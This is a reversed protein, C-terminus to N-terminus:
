RPKDLFQRSLVATEDLFLSGYEVSPEIESGEHWENWSTILVWDPNAAVAEQWLVRYTEGGWRDTVPRPKPRDVARDDYGPIVTVTSIKGAGAATVAKPYALHAWDRIEAPTKHQTQGTINYVSTGDFAALHAPDVSSAVLVAGSPNGRRVTAVVEQWQAPSLANVARGYVFVVPKGDVRLWSEDGASGTLLYDLDAVASKIRSDPDDGTVKEYYASVTLGHKRAAALLPAMGRDEFSDRGWWSAIFGTIGAAKAAVAQREILAPDHSDYAGWAPFHASNAIRGNAPDVDGWHRWGASVAPNGWWGYYFALIEPRMMRTYGASSLVLLNAIGILLAMVKAPIALSPM